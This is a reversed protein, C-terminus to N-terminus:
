SLDGHHKLNAISLLKNELAIILRRFEMTKGSFRVGIEINKDIAPMTLNFSGIIAISDCDERGCALYAKAHLNPIYAITINGQYKKVMSVLDHGTDPHTIILMPVKKTINCIISRILIESMFPACIVLRRYSQPTRAVLRILSFIDKANSLTV